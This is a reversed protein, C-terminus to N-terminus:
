SRPRCTRRMRPMARNDRARSLRLAPLRTRPYDTRCTAAQGFLFNNRRDRRDRNRSMAGVFVALLVGDMRADTDFRPHTGLRDGVIRDVISQVRANESHRREPQDLEVRRVRTIIRCAGHARSLKSPAASCRLAMGSRPTRAFCRRNCWRMRTHRCGSAQRTSMRATSVIRNTIQHVAPNTPM